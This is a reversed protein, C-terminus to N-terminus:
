IEVSENSDRIVIDDEISQNRLSDLEVQLRRASSRLSIVERKQSILQILAMLFGILVGATFTIILVIWVNFEFPIEANKFNPLKITMSHGEIQNLENLKVLFIVSVILILVFILYKLLKM